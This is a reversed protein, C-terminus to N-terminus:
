RQLAASSEASIWIVGDREEVAYTRVPETCPLLTAEGTRVDFRGQHFPCEIEHGELCGDSLRASGHSCRDETAYAVDDVRYVCLARGDVTVPWADGNGVDASRCAQILPAISPEMPWGTM